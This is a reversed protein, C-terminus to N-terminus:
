ETVIPIGSFAPDTRFLRLPFPQDFSDEIKAVSLADFFGDLGQDKLLDLSAFDAIM